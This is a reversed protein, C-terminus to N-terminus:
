PHATSTSIPGSPVPCPASTVEMLTDGGAVTLPIEGLAALVATANVHGTAPDVALAAISVSSVGRADAVVLNPGAPRVVEAYTGDDGLTTSWRVAGTSLRRDV